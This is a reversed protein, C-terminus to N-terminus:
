LDSNLPDYDNGGSKKKKKPAPTAAPPTSTSSKKSGKTMRDKIAEDLSMPMGPLPEDPEAKARAPAPKPEAPEKKAARTSTAAMTAKPQAKPEPPDAKPLAKKTAATAAMTAEPAPKAAVPKTSEPPLADIALAKSATAEAKPPEPKVDAKPADAKPPEAKPSETAVPDSPRPLLSQAGFASAGMGAVAVGDRQEVSRPTGFAPGGLAVELREYAADQGARHALDRLLDNRYLTVAAGALVAAAMLWAGFRSRRPVFIDPDSAFARISDRRGVSPPAVDMAAPRLSGGPAAEMVPPFASASPPYMNSPVAPARPVAPAPAQSPYPSVPRPAVGFTQTAYPSNAPRYTPQLKPPPVYARAVTEVDGRYEEVPPAAYPTLKPPHSYTRPPTVEPVAVLHPLPARGASRPLPAVPVPPLSQKVTMHEHPNSYDDTGVSIWEEGDDEEEAEIGLAEGLTTWGKMDPGWVKTNVGIVDLRFFDDLQELTITKVQGESIVVHWMDNDDDDADPELAEADIWSANAM